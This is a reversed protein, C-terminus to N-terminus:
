TKGGRIVQFTSHAPASTSNNVAPPPPSRFKIDTLNDVSVYDKFDQNVEDRPRLALTISGLSQGHIVRGADKPTLSVTIESFQEKPSQSPMVAEGELHEGTALVKVGSLLPLTRSQPTSDNHSTDSYTIYMDVNDGPRLFGSISNKSDVSITLAREGPKLLTSFSSASVKALHFETVADGQAIEYLVQKGKINDFLAPDVAAAPAYAKPVQRVSVTTPDIVDGPILKHTAVIIPITNLQKDLATQKEQVKTNVYHGALYWGAGGTAIAGTLLLITTVNKKM